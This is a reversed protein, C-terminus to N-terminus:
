GQKKVPKIAPRVYEFVKNLYKLSLIAMNTHVGNEKCARIIEKNLVYRSLVNKNSVGGTRM